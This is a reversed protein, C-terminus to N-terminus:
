EGAKLSYFESIEGLMKCYIKVTFWDYQVYHMSKEEEQKMLAIFIGQLNLIM